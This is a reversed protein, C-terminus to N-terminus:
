SNTKKFFADDKAKNKLVFEDWKGIIDTLSGEMEPGYDYIYWLGLNTYISKQGKQRDSSNDLTIKIANYEKNIFDAAVIMLFTGIGNGVFKDNTSLYSINLSTEILLFYSKKIFEQEIPTFKDINEFNNIDYQEYKKIFNTYIHEIQQKVKKSMKESKIQKVIDKYISHTNNYILHTNNYISHTNNNNIKRRQRKEAEEIEIKRKRKREKEKVLEREKTELIQLRKSRRRIHELNMSIYGVTKDKVLTKSPEDKINTQIIQQEEAIYLV